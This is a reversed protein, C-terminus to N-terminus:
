TTIKRNVQFSCWILEYDAIEPVHTVGYDDVLEPNNTIIHDILTATTLSIRTPDNIIQVLGTRGLLDNLAVADKSDFALLNINLDGLCLFNDHTPIIDSITQEFEGYYSSPPKYLVGIAIKTKSINSVSIWLQEIASNTQIIHYALHSRIYIAIGGGATNRDQRIFNYGEISILNQSLQPALRTESIGIIDYYNSQVMGLFNRFNAILSRVNIHACRLAM